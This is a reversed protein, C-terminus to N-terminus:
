KCFYSAIIFNLLQMALYVKKKFNSHFEMFVFILLEEYKAVTDTILGLLLTIM